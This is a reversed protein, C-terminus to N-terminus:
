MIIIQVFNSSQLKHNSSEETSHLSSLRPHSHPQQDGGFLSAHFPHNGPSPPALVVGLRINTFGLVKGATCGVEWRPSLIDKGKFVSGITQLPPSSTCFLGIIMLCVLTAIRDPHLRADLSLIRSRSIGQGNTRKYGM